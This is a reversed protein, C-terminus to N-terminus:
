ASLRRWVKITEYWLVLISSMYAITVVDDLEIPKGWILYIYFALIVTFIVTLFFLQPFFRNGFKVYGDLLDSSIDFVVIYKGDETKKVVGSDVLRSLHYFTLSPTSFGLARHVDRLECPGNKLVFLYVRATNGKINSTKPATVYDGRERCTVESDSRKYYM